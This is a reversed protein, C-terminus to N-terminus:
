ILIISFIQPPVEAPSTVAASSRSVEGQEGEYMIRNTEARDAYLFPLLWVDHAGAPYVCQFTKLVNERESAFAANTRVLSILSPVVAQPLAQVNAGNFDNLRM